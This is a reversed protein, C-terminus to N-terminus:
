APPEWMQVGQGVGAGATPELSGERVRRSGCGNHAEEAKGAAQWAGM